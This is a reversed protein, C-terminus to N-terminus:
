IDSKAIALTWVTQDAPDLWFDLVYFGILVAEASMRSENSVSGGAGHVDAMSGEVASSINRIISFAANEYSGKVTDGYSMRRGAYGIGTVYGPVLPPEDIWGPKAAGHSSQFPYPIDVLVASPYRVRVFIANHEQLVDTESDFIFNEIYKQYDTEIDLTSETDAQYDWFTVGTKGYFAIRGKVQTFMAAKRAADELALRISAERDFRTGAVGHFVLEGSVSLTNWFGNKGNDQPPAETRSSSSRCSSFIFVCLIVMFIYKKM